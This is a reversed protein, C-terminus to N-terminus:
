YILILKNDCDYLHIISFERSKEKIIFNALEIFLDEPEFPIQNLMYLMQWKTNIDKCAQLFLETEFEKKGKTLCYARILDIRTTHNAFNLICYIVQEKTIM